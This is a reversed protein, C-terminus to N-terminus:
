RYTNNWLYIARFWLVLLSFFKILWRMNILRCNFWFILVVYYFLHSSIFQFSFKSCTPLLVHLFWSSLWIRGTTEWNEVCIFLLADWTRTKVQLLGLIRQLERWSLWLCYIRFYWFFGFLSWFCSFLWSHQFFLLALAPLFSSSLILVCYSLSLLRVEVSSM